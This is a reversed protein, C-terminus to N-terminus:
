LQCWGLRVVAFVPSLLKSYIHKNAPIESCWRVVVASHHQRRMASTVLELRTPDVGLTEHKAPLVSHQLIAETVTGSRKVAVMSCDARM